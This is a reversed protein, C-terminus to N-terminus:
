LNSSTLRETENRRQRVQLMRYAVEKYKLSNANHLLTHHENICAALTRTLTAVDLTFSQEIREACM